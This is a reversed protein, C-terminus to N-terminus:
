TSRKGNKSLHGLEILRNRLQYVRQTTRGMVVAIQQPTLGKKTLSLVRAQQETLKPTGRPM